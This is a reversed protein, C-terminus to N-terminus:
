FDSGCNFCEPPCYGTSNCGGPPDYSLGCVGVKGHCVTDDGNTIPKAMCVEWSSAKQSCSKYWKAGDGEPSYRSYNDCMKGSCCFAQIGIFPAWCEWCEECKYATLGALAIDDALAGPVFATQGGFLLASILLLSGTMPHKGRLTPQNHM